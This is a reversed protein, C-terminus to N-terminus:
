PKQGPVADAERQIAKACAQVARHHASEMEKRLAAYHGIPALEKDLRQLNVLAAQPDNKLKREANEIAEDVTRRLWAQEAASVDAALSPFEEVLTRRAAAGRQYGAVDGVPLARLEDIQQYGSWLNVGRNTPVLWLAIGACALGIAMGRLRSYASRRHSLAMCAFLGTSAGLVMLRPLHHDSMGGVSGVYFAALVGLVICAICQLLPAGQPSPQVTRSQPQKQQQPSKDRQPAAVPEVLPPEEMAAQAPQPPSPRWPRGAHLRPPIRSEGPRWPEFPNVNGKM